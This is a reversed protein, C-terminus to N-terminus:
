FLSVSGASFMISGPTPAPFSSSLKPETPRNTREVVMSSETQSFERATQLIVENMKSIMSEPIDSSDTLIYRQITCRIPYRTDRKYSQTQKPYQGKKTGYSIIGAEFGRTNGMGAAMGLAGTNSEYGMGCMGVGYGSGSLGGMGCGYGSGSLGGMNPQFSTGLPMYPQQKYLGFYGRTTDVVLPIQFILLMNQDKEEATMPQDLAVGRNTRDETLRLAKFDCSEGNNNFYINTLSSDLVRVSTGQSSVVVTLVAPNATTTQYNYISVCFNVFGETCPLICFQSSVVVEEDSKALLSQTQINRTSAESYQGLNSLLEVMNIKKLPQNSENGINATFNKLPVDITKDAFNPRRIVPLNCGHWNDDGTLHLTMDSINPGWVSGKTRASDEWCVMQVALNYREFLSSHMLNGLRNQIDRQRIKKQVQLYLKEYEQPPPLTTGDFNAILINELKQQSAM